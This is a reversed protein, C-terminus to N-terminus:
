RKAARAITGIVYYASLLFFVAGILARAQDGSLPTRDELPGAAADAVKERWGVLATQGLDEVAM